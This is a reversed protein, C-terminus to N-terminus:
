QKSIELADKVNPIQYHKNIISQIITTLTYLAKYVSIMM